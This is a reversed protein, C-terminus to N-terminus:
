KTPVPINEAQQVRPKKHCHSSLLNGIFAQLNHDNLQPWPIVPSISNQPHEKSFSSPFIGSKIELDSFLFTPKWSDTVVARWRWVTSPACERLRTFFFFFFAKYFPPPEKRTINKKGWPWFLKWFGMPKALGSHHLFEEWVANSLSFLFPCFTHVGQQRWSRM